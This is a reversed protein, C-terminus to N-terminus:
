FRRIRRNYKNHEEETIKKAKALAYYSEKFIAKM